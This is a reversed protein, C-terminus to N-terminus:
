QSKWFDVSFVVQWNYVSILLSTRNYAMLWKFGSAITAAPFLRLLRLKTLVSWNVFLFKPNPPSVQAYNYKNETPPVPRWEKKCQLVFIKDCSDYFQYLFERETVCYQLIQSDDIGVLHMGVGETGDLAKSLSEPLEM